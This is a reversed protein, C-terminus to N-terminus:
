VAAQYVALASSEPIPKTTTTQVPFSEPELRLDTATPHQQEWDRRWIELKLSWRQVLRKRRSEILAELKEMERAHEAEEAARERDHAAGMLDMEQEQKHMKNKAEREQKARLVNITNEQRRPLSQQLMRQRDLKKFDEESVVHPHDPNSQSGGLCYAEMHKLATAVNQAEIDQAKRLDHEAIIQM